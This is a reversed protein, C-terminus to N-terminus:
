PRQELSRADVIARDLRINAGVAVPRRPAQAPMALSSRRAVIAFSGVGDSVVGTAM